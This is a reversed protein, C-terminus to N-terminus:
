GRALARSWYMYFPVGLAVFLTTNGLAKWFLPTDLLRLYNGLGVFRVNRVDAVAYLDFDTLSLGFAALVPLLFFVAIALLAPAAFVWGATSARM